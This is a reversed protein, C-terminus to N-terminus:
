MNTPLECKALLELEGRKVRGGPRIMKRIPDFPNIALEQVDTGFLARFLDVSKLGIFPTNPDWNKLADTDTFAVSIPNKNADILRVLQLQVGSQLTQMGPGVGPPLEPVPILLMSALLAEYLNKRTDPNDNTAVEHMAQVLAPNGKDIPSDKKRGLLADLFKM